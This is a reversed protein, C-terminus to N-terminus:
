CPLVQRDRSRRVFSHCDDALHQVCNGAHNTPMSARPPWVSNQHSGTWIGAESAAMLRRKVDIPSPRHTQMSPTIGITRTEDFEGCIECERYTMFVSKTVATKTRRPRGPCTPMKTSSFSKRRTQHRSMADEDMALPNFVRERRSPQQPMLRHPSAMISITSAWRQRVQWIFFSAGIFRQCHHSRSLV